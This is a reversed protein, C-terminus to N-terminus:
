MIWEAPAATWLRDKRSRRWYKEATQFSRDLDLCCYHEHRTLDRVMADVGHSAGLGISEAGRPGHRAGIPLWVRWERRERKVNILRPTALQQPPLVPEEMTVSHNTSQVDHRGNVGPVGPRYADTWAIRQPRMAILNAEATRNDD